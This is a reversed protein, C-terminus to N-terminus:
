RLEKRECLLVALEVARDWSIGERQDLALPHDQDDHIQIEPRETGWHVNTPLDVFKAGEKTYGPMSVTLWGFSGDGTQDENFTEIYRDFSEKSQSVWVGWLFSDRTDKIPVELTARIFFQEEDLVCLDSNLRVRKEKEEDPIASTHCPENYAFSPGGECIEGCCICKYSFTRKEDDIAIIM